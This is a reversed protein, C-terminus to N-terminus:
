VVFTCGEGGEAEWAVCAEENVSALGWGFTGGGCVCGVGKSSWVVILLNSSRSVASAVCLSQLPGGGADESRCGV